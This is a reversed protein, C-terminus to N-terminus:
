HYCHSKSSSGHYSQLFSLYGNKPLNSQHLIKPLYDYHRYSQLYLM